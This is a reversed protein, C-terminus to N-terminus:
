FSGYTELDPSRDPALASARGQEMATDHKPVIKLDPKAARTEQDNLRQELLIEEAQVSQLFEALKRSTVTFERSQHQALKRLEQSALMIERESRGHFVSFYESHCETWEKNVFAYAVGADFPDYRVSVRRKEVDTARFADSWYYLHHIKIGRAPAVKATGKPTTPLTHVLFDRDYAILRHPRQGTRVIADDYADRPSQGLAPHRLTDYVEHAYETLRRHLEEFPWVAQGKPNVSPTVQRALRTIQTNGRLNHVFRTNATQFLRECVSGFRPKAAPRTKKMCEYRALLTEFYVSQFDKGGDVVIIQPLRAHRRVCERLVMMCSRYSPPDFTLYLALIRRSFADSLLTLWPRGLVRGTRSCVTEVDLETHDIHAIEFPRDGHRPTKPELDWYFDELAYAARHGQRKLTQEFGPRLRVARCFTKFSPTLIGREECALKLAIWSAYMTKQKANEYDTTIFEEMLARSETPLKPTVNGRPSCPLLGLYGSGLESEAARYAAVWRRLTRRPISAGTPAAVGRLFALVHPLRENAMRLELENASALRKRVCTPSSAIAPAPSRSIMAISRTADPAQLAAAKSTSVHIMCPESLPAAHLDVYLAGSAIMSYIDDRSITAGTADFLQELSIAPAAGVYALALERVKDPVSIEVRLYDDLFQINRQFVWDIDRSSRVRYYLGLATAYSEGPPCIWRPGDLRYRNPNKRSLQTLDDETKCEEWGASDRRIVFYDATHLVGIPRGDSSEYDLKITPPQDFYELVDPDHELEYVAALEVRHSEFQIMCGMKRSPYRGSVNRRGGGVRRAPDSTRIHDIATRSEKSLGTREYWALVDVGALM